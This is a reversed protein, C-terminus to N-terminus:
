KTGRLIQICAATARSGYEQARKRADQESQKPGSIGLTVPKGHAISLDLLKAAVTYGIVGDHDTEGQIIAGITVVGDAKGQKLIKSVAFPIDFAGPVRVVQVITASQRAAEQKASEVMSDTISRHFEGAVISIREGAM